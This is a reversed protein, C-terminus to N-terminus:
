GNFSKFKESFQFSKKKMVKKMDRLFNDAAVEKQWGNEANSLAVYFDHETTVGFKFCSVDPKEGRTIEIVKM